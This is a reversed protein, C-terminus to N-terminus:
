GGVIDSRLAEIRALLEKREREGVGLEDLSEGMHEILRDFHEGGIGMGAHTEKMSRGHYACPGGALACVFDVAHQRIRPGEEEPVDSLYPALATDAGMRAFFDDVFAAIVDYGGLREYLAPGEQAPAPRSLVGLAVVVATIVFSSRFARYM